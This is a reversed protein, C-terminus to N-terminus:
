KSLADRFAQLVQRAPKNRKELNEAWEASVSDMVDQLKKAESPDLSVFEVGDKKLAEIDKAESDDTHQCIKRITYEAAEDFAKKVEPAFANWRERAIVYTVVFSGFNHGITASKFGTSLGYPAVSTHPLLMGDVTGRHLAERMEPSPISVPVAGLKKLALVKAAGTTRIKKGQVVDISKIEQKAMYLQYPALVLSWLVRVGTPEFEVKDLVGGEKALQWFALTGECSKSFPLPLEGVVSLPLKDTVFAPAVYGIDITGAQTLSLLDKAKGMQEAPYYEFVVKGGTLSTVKEMWPKTGHESIYHGVPFSDGVRLKMESAYASSGALAAALVALGVASRRIANSHMAEEEMFHGAYRSVGAEVAEKRSM